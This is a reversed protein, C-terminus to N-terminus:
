APRLLKLEPMPFDRSNDTILTADRAIAQAALLTDTVALTTGQRAYKYRLEGALKAVYFEIVWFDFAKFLQEARAADRERLGSYTEATSIANVALVAASTALSQLLEIAPRQGNLWGILINADLLYEKM